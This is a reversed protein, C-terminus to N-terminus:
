IQVQSTVEYSVDWLEFMSFMFVFVRVFSRFMDKFLSRFDVIFDAIRVQGLRRETYEELDFYQAITVLNEAKHM